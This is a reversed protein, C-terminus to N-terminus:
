RLTFSGFTKRVLLNQCTKAAKCDDSFSQHLDKQAVPVLFYGSM